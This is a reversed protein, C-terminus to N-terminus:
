GNTVFGKSRVRAKLKSGNTMFYNDTKPTWCIIKESDIISL